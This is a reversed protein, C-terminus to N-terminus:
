LHFYTCSFDIVATRMIPVPKKKTTCKQLKSMQVLTMAQDKEHKVSFSLCGINADIKLLNM